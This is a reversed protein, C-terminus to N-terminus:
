VLDTPVRTFHLQGQAYDAEVVRVRDLLGICIATIMFITVTLRKAQDNLETVFTEM